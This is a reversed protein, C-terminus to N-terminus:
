DIIRKLYFLAIAWFCFEGKQQPIRVIESSSKIQLPKFSKFAGYVKWELEPVVFVMRLIVSFFM